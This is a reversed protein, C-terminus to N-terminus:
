NNGIHADLKKNAISIRDVKVHSNVGIFAAPVETQCYPSKIHKIHLRKQTIQRYIYNTLM